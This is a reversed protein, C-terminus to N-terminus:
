YSGGGQADRTREDQTQQPKTPTSSTVGTCGGVLLLIALLGLIRHMPEKRGTM